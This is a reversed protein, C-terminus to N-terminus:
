LSTLRERVDDWHSGRWFHQGCDVCRWVSEDTSRPAYEPTRDGAPVPELTGNCRGCRTPEDLSLDFGAALLERLQETVERGALLVAADARSAVARDRTVVTRGEERALDLLAADAEADRDLAYVADYGCMRLYTVLKGLMVDLLLPPRM